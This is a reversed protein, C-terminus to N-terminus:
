MHWHHCSRRNGTVPCLSSLMFGISCHPDCAVETHCYGHGPPHPDMEVIVCLLARIGPLNVKGNAMDIETTTNVVLDDTAVRGDCLTAGNDSETVGDVEDSM